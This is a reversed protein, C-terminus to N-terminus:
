RCPDHRHTTPIIIDIILCVAKRGPRVSGLLVTHATTPYLPTRRVLGCLNASCQFATKYPSTLFSTVCIPSSFSGLAGLPDTPGLEASNLEWNPVFFVTPIM